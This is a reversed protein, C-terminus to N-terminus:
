LYASVINVTAAVIVVGFVYSVLSHHLVARRMARTRLATDSVQYTMGITFAVYALDRYAPSDTDPFAIGGSAEDYYLHAYHLTFTGNVVVWSVVVTLVSLALLWIRTGGDTDDATHLAWGVGLLSAMSVLLVLLRATGKTEDDRQAHQMTAPADSSYILHMTITVLVIATTDWGALLPLPWEGFTAVVAGVVVGAAVAVGLRVLAPAHSGVVRHYPGVHKAPADM